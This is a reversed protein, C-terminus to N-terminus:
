INAIISVFNFINSFWQFFCFPLVIKLDGGKILEEFSVWKDGKNM